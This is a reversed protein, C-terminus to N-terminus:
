KRKELRGIRRDLIFMWAAIGILVASVVVVVTHIKGSGYLSDVLWGPASEQAFTPLTCAAGVLLAMSRRLDPAM